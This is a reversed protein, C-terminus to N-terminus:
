FDMQQYVKKGKRLTVQPVFIQTGDLTDGGKDFYHVPQDKLKCITVDAPVGPRLTGMQDELNFVKASRYTVSDIVETLPMGMSLFKGMVYPLSFTPEQYLHANNIDTSLTDPYFGQAIAPKGVKFAFHAMGNAIDFIVGKERAKKVCDLIRGNEDIILNGQGHFAHSYVDGPRLIDLIEEVEGGPNTTHVVVPRNVENGIEVAARLPALGLEQVYPRSIRVKLAIIEDPYKEVTEAILKRPFYKPDLNEPYFSAPSLGVSSVNLFAKINAWAYGVIDRSFLAYNAPGPSGADFASTVGMPFLFADPKFGGLGCGEFLHMHCDIWGATVLCGSADIVEADELTEGAKLIGQIKGNAIALDAVQDLNQSPDIIRGNKILVNAHM